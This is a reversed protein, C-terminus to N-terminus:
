IRVRGITKGAELLCSANVIAGALDATPRAPGFVFTVIAANATLVAADVRTDEEGSAPRQPPALLALAAAQGMGSDRARVVKVAQQGHKRCALRAHFRAVEPVLAFTAAFARELDEAENQALAAPSFCCVLFLAIFFRCAFRRDM